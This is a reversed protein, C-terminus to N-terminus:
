GAGKTGGGPPRGQGPRSAESAGGEEELAVDAAGFVDKSVHVPVQVASVVIAGDALEPGVPRGSAHARTGPYGSPSSHTIGPFFIATQSANWTLFLPDRFPFPTHLSLPPPPSCLPLPSTSNVATPVSAM